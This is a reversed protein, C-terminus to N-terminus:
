ATNEQKPEFSIKDLVEQIAFLYGERKSTDDPFVHGEDVAVIQQLLWIKLQGYVPQISDGVIGEHITLGATRFTGKVGRRSRADELRELTGFYELVRLFRYIQPNSM